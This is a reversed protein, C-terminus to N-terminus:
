TTAPFVLAGLMMIPSFAAAIIKSSARYPSMPHSLQYITGHEM